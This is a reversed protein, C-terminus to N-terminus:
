EEDNEMNENIEIGLDWEVFLCGDGMNPRIEDGSLTEVKETIEETIPLKKRNYFYM